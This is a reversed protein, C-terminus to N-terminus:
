EEMAPADVLVRSQAEVASCAAVLHNVNDEQGYAMVVYDGVSLVVVKDPFGCMWHQGQVATKYAEAFEPAKAPEKLRAVASCFTNTNMMHQLTAVDDELMRYLDDPVLLLSKFSDENDETLLFQGPGETSHGMDGGACPFRDDEDFAAWVETYFDVASAIAPAAPQDAGSASGNNGSGGARGCGVFALMALGMLTVLLISIGKKVKKMKKM